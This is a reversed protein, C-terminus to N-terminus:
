NLSYRIFLKNWDDAMVQRLEELYEPAMEHAICLNKQVATLRTERVLKKIKEDIPKNVLFKWVMAIEAEHVKVISKALEDM